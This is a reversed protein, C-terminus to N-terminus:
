GKTGPQRMGDPTLRLPIPHIIQPNQEISSTSFDFNAPQVPQQPPPHHPLSMSAAPLVPHDDLSLLDLSHYQQQQQQPKINNITIDPMLNMSQIGTTLSAAHSTPSDSFKTWNSGAPDKDCSSSMNQSQSPNHVDASTHRRVPLKKSVATAYLSAPLRKPVDIGNRKLVTLHMAICFEDLSLCGDQDIDSLKWIDSLQNMSLGSKEFFSKATSGTICRTVDPEKSMFQKVYYEKQSDSIAFVDNTEEDSEDEQDMDEEEEDDEEEGEILRIGEDNALNWKEEKEDVFSQWGQGALARPSSGPEPSSSPTLSLGPGSHTGGTRKKIRIRDSTGQKLFVGNSPSVPGPVQVQSMMQSPPPPSSTAAAATLSASRNRPSISRKASTHGISTHGISTHGPIICLSGSRDSSSCSSSSRSSLTDRVAPSASM